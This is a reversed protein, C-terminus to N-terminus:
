ILFTCLLAQHSANSPRPATGPFSADVPEPQNAVRPAERKNMLAGRNQNTFSSNRSVPPASVKCCSSDHARPQGTIESRSQTDMMMLHHHECERAALSQPSCAGVTSAPIALLSGMLVATVFKILWTLM